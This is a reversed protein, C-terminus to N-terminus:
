MMKALCKNLNTIQETLISDNSIVDCFIDEVEFQTNNMIESIKEIYHNFIHKLQEIEKKDTKKDIM